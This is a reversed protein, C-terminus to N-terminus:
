NMISISSVTDGDLTIQVVTDASLDSVSASEKEMGRTIVASDSITYTKSEGDFNMEPQKRERNASGTKGSDDAQKDPLSAGEESKEPLTVDDAPKEPPSMGDSSRDPPTTGNNRGEQAPSGEPKEGKNALIVTMTQNDVSTIKALIGSDKTPQEQQAETQAAAATTANSNTSCGTLALICIGACLLNITYKKM